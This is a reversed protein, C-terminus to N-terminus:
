AKPLEPHISVPCGQDNMAVLVVETETVKVRERNGTASPVSPGTPLLVKIAPVREPMEWSYTMGVQAM